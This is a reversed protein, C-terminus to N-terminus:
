SHAHRCSSRQPPCTQPSRGSSSPAPSRTSSACGPLHGDGVLDKALGELGSFATSLRLGLKEGAPTLTIGRGSKVMLQQGITESFRRIQHSVASQTVGLDEAALKVSRHRSVAEFYDATFLALKVCM